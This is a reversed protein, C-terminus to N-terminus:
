NPVTYRLRFEEPVTLIEKPTNLYKAGPQVLTELDGWTEIPPEYFGSIVLPDTSSSDAEITYFSGAPLICLARAKSSIPLYEDIFRGEEQAIVLTGLGKHVILRKDPAESSWFALETRDGPKIRAIKRVAEAVGSLAIYDFQIFDYIFGLGEKAQFPSGKGDTVVRATRTAGQIDRELDIGLIEATEVTLQDIKAM